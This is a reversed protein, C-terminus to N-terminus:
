KVMLINLIPTLSALTFRFYSAYILPITNANRSNLTLWCCTIQLQKDVYHQQIETRILLSSQRKRANM